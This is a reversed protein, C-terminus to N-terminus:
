FKSICSGRNILVDAQALIMSFFLISTRAAIYNTNTIGVLTVVLLMVLVYSVHKADDNEIRRLQKIKGIMSIITWIVWVCGLIGTQLMLGLIGLDEIYYHIDTRFIKDALLSGGRLLGLGMLEKGKIQIFYYNMENLRTAGSGTGKQIEDAFSFIQNWYETKSLALLGVGLVILFSFMKNIKKRSGSNITKKMSTIIVAVFLLIIGGRSQSVYVLAFILVGVIIKIKINAKGKLLYAIGIIEAFFSMATGWIRMRGNRITFEFLNIYPFFLSQAIAVISVIVSMTLIYSNAKGIREYNKIFYNYFFYYSFFLGFYYIGMLGDIINQKYIVWCYVINLVGIICIANILYKSSYKQFIISKIHLFSYLIIFGACIILGNFGLLSTLQLLLLFFLFMDQKSVRM